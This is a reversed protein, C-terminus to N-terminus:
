GLVLPVLPENRLAAMNGFACITSSCKNSLNWACVFHKYKVAHLVVTSMMVTAPPSCARCCRTGLQRYGAVSGLLSSLVAAPRMSKWLLEMCGRRNPCSLIEREKATIYTNYIYHKKKEALNSGTPPPYFQPGTQSLNILCNYLPVSPIFTWIILIERMKGRWLCHKDGLLVLSSSSCHSEKWFWSGYQVAEANRSDVFNGVGECANLAQLSLYITLLSAMQKQWWGQRGQGM